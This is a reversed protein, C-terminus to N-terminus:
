THGDNGRRGAQQSVLLRGLLTHAPFDEGVDPLPPACVHRTNSSKRDGHRRADVHGDVALGDRDLAGLALQLVDHGPGDRHGPGILAGDLDLPGVVLAGRARQVAQGARQDGVHHETHGLTILLLHLDVAGTVAHGGLATVELEGEAVAVRDGDLRRLANGEGDLVRGSERDLADVLLLNALNGCVDALQALGVRVLALAHAIRALLDAALDSLSTLLGHCHDDLAGLALAGSATATVKPEALLETARRQTGAQDHRPGAAVHEDLDDVVGGAAGNGRGGGHFRVQTREVTVLGGLGALDTLEDGLTGLAGADVRDDEVATAVAVVAPDRSDGVTGALAPQSQSPWCRSWSKLSSSRRIGPGWRRPPVLVAAPEAPPPSRPPWRRSRSPRRSLAGSFFAKTSRTTVMLRTELTTLPPRRKLKVASTTTPSPLPM